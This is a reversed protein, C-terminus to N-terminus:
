HLRKEITAQLAVEDLDLVYSQVTSQEDITWIPKAGEEPFDFNVTSGNELRLHVSLYASYEGSSPVAVTIKGDADFNQSWYSASELPLKTPQLVLELRQGSQLKPSPNLQVEVPIGKEMTFEYEGPEPCNGMLSRTGNGIAFFSIEREPLYLEGFGRHFTTQASTDSALSLVGHIRLDVGDVPLDNVDRFRFFYRFVRVRLDWSQLRPDGSSSASWPIVDPIGALIASTEGDILLVQRADAELTLVSFSGDTQLTSAPLEWYSDLGSAPLDAPALVVRLQTPNVGADFRAQGSIRLGEEMVLSVGQSGARVEMEQDPYSPHRAVLLLDESPPDGHIAFQAQEDVPYVQRNITQWFGGATQYMLRLRVGPVPEGARNVVQGSCLLPGQSFVVDGVDHPGPALEQEMQIQARLDPSVVPLNLDIVLSGSVNEGQGISIPCEGRGDADLNIRDSMQYNFNAGTLRFHLDVDAHAFPEGSDNVARFVLLPNAHVEQVVVRLNEGARWPGSFTKVTPIRGIGFQVGADLELGLGIFPYDAEGHFATVSGMGMDPRAEAGFIETWQDQQAQHRQLFTEESWGSEGDARMPVLTVSAFPPVQYLLEEPFNQLDLVLEPAERFPAEARVLLRNAADQSPLRAEVHDLIALGSADSTFQALRQTFNSREFDLALPFNALPEGREDVVRVRLEHDQHLQLWYIAGDTAHNRYLEAYLEGSKAVLYFSGEPITLQVKGEADSFWTMGKDSLRELIAEYLDGMERLEALSEGADSLLWLETNALPLGGNRAITLVTVQSGKASTDVEARELASQLIKEREIEGVSPTLEAKTEKPAIGAEVRQESKATSSHSPEGNSAAPDGLIWWLGLALVLFLALVQLPRSLM